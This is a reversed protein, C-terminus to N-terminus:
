NGNSGPKPTYLNKECKDDLGEFVRTWEVKLKAERNECIFENLYCNNIM